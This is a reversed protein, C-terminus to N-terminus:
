MAQALRRWLRAVFLKMVVLAPRRSTSTTTLSGEDRSFDLAM